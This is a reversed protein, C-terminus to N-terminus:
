KPLHEFDAAFILDSVVLEVDNINIAGDANADQTLNFRMQMSDVRSLNVEDFEFLDFEYRGFQDVMFAMSQSQVFEADRLTLTVFFPQTILGVEFSVFDYASIDVEGGWLAILDSDGWSISVLQGNLGADYPIGITLVGGAVAASTVDGAQGGMGGSVYLSRFMALESGAGLAQWTRIDSPTDSPDTIITQNASFDDLTVGHAMVPLLLLLKWM